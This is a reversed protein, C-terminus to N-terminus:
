EGGKTLETLNCQNNLFFNKGDTTLFLPGMWYPLECKKQTPPFSWHGFTDDGERVWLPRMAFYKSGYSYIIGGGYFYDEIGDFNADIIADVRGWLLEPPFKTLAKLKRLIKSAEEESYMKDLSKGEAIWMRQNDPYPICVNLRNDALTFSYGRTFSIFDFDLEKHNDYRITLYIDRPAVKGKKIIEFVKEIGIREAGEFVSLDYDFRPLSKDIHILAFAEREDKKGNKYLDYRSYGIKKEKDIWEVKLFADCMPFKEKLAKPPNEMFGINKFVLKANSEGAEASFSKAAAMTVSLMLLMIGLIFKNHM